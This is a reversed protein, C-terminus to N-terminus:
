AAGVATRLSRWTWAVVHHILLGVGINAVALASAGLLAPEVDMVATTVLVAPWGVAAVVLATRWWRGLVAGLLLVPIM